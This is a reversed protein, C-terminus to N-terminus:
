RCPDYDNGLIVRIDAPQNPDPQYVVNEPKVRLIKTLLAVAEPKDTFVIIQTQEYDANDAPGTEVVKLGEWRLLDAAILAL